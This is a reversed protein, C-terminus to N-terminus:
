ATFASRQFLGRSANLMQSLQNLAICSAGITFCERENCSGTIATRCIVGCEEHRHACM